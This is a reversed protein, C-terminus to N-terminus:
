VAAQIVQTYKKIKSAVSMDVYKDGISVIMGGIISPDVKLELIINEGKKAFAKLVTQLEKKLEEDLEKATTVECRLDGRHGAMITSFASTVGALRNIRGNEALLALLNVSPPTLKIKAAMQKVAEVKLNRKIVPNHLYEKLTTDANLTKKVNELDKEVIDLQKMKSAASYLASAYRGDLGFVQVPPKIPKTAAASALTRVINITYNAAM